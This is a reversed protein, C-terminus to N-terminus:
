EVFDYGNGIRGWEKKAKEKWEQSFLFWMLFWLVVSSMWHLRRFQLSLLVFMVHFACLFFCPYFFSVWSKCVTRTKIKCNKDLSSSKREKESDMVSVAEKGGEQSDYSLFANQELWLSLLLTLGTKSSLPHLYDLFVIATSKVGIVFWTTVPFCFSVLIPYWNRWWFSLFPEVLKERELLRDIVMGNRSKFCFM